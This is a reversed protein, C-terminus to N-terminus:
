SVSRTRITYSPNWSVRHLRSNHRLTVTGAQDIRDHRVRGSVWLEDRTAAVGCLESATGSNPSHAKAPRATRSLRYPRYLCRTEPSGQACCCVM